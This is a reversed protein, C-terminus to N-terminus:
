DAWRIGESTASGVSGNDDSNGEEEGLGRFSYSTCIVHEMCRHLLVVRSCPVIYTRKAVQINKEM